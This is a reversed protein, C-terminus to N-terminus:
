RYGGDARECGLVRRRRDGPAGASRPTRLAPARFNLLHGFRSLLENGVDRGLGNEM